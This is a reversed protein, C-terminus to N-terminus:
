ATQALLSAVGEHWARILTTADAIPLDEIGLPASLSLCALGVGADEDAAIRADVDHDSPDIDYPAEGRTYLTWGRLCPLHSRARLRDVFPEPWLHQHLDVALGGAIDRTVTM